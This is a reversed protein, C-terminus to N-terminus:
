AGISVVRARRQNAVADVHDAWEQLARRVPGELTAFDYHSATVGERSHHLILDCIDSSVHRHERLWTTVCRRLDHVWADNVGALERAKKMARSITEQSIHEARRTGGRRGHTTGPFAYVSEEGALELTRSFLSAAQTSLPVIQERNRAKMRESPIRWQPNASDLRLESKMAGAVESNRQGTLVALRLITRPVSLSALPGFQFDFGRVFGLEVIDV